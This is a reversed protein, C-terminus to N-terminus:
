RPASCSGSSCRSCSAPRTPSAPSTTTARLHMSGFALGGIFAGVFGNGGAEIAVAYALSLSASYRLRVSRQHAGAGDAPRECRHRASCDSRRPRRRCRHRSRGGRRRSRPRPRGRRGRRRRHLPQRVTHRHRREARERREARAACAAPVREDQMISAGLAADTPAVIAGIVAAVWIDVGGFLVAACATGAAITLPLGIGLLRVPVAVDARLERVNVRSADSFLVLALTIEAVSRLTSSTLHVDLLSLPEHAVVLGLVVFAIPASVNVRELRASVLAWLVFCAAVVALTGPTSVTNWSERSRGAIRPCTM